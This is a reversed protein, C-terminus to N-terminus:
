TSATATSSSATRPRRLNSATGICLLADHHEHDHESSTTRTTPRSCRCAWTAVSMKLLEANVRDQDGIGHRQLELYYRDKFIAPLGRRPRWATEM